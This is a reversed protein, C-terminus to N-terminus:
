SEPFGLADAFVDAFDARDALNIADVLAATEELADWDLASGLVDIAGLLSANGCYSVRDLALEPPTAGVRRASTLNLSAGFGGALYLADLASASTRAEELLIRVGAKIAGLALQAQRVDRQSLRVAGAGDLNSILFSRTGRAESLRDALAQNQLEPSDSRRLRGNPALAGFALAGALADVLGSGCVGLAPANEVTHARWEGSSVGYDVRCIAGRTALMGQSIECGEFAPGAATSAALYRGNSGLLVEGNTGFDLFLATKNRAFAGKQLLRAFGSLVDGGIFASIVPFIRVRAKSFSNLDFEAGVYERFSKKAVTFPAAGLPAVDLGTLLYEMTTNGAIIVEIISAPNLEFEGSLELATREIARWAEALMVRRADPRKGAADIRSLVDRGFSIQPNRTSRARLTRGTALSVLACVITTTGLDVALGWKGRREERTPRRTQAFAAEEPACIKAARFPTKSTDVRLPVDGARTQCALVSRRTGDPDVVEVRCRGCVGRGGCEYDLAFGSERLADSILAGPPILLTKDSM